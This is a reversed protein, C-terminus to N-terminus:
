WGGAGAQGFSGGCAVVISGVLAYQWHLQAWQGHAPISGLAYHGYVDSTEVATLDWIVEMGSALPYQGEM